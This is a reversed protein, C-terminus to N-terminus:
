QADGNGEVVAMAKEIADRAVRAAEEPALGADDPARKPAADLGLLRARREMIRLVRDVAGLHGTRAQTWLGVMMADLRAVEEAALVAADGRIHEAIENMGAKVASHATELSVGLKNAIEQYTLGSRRLDMAKVQREMKRVRDANTKTSFAM